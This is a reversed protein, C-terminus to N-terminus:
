KGPLKMTIYDPKGFRAYDWGPAAYEPNFPSRSAERFGKTEYMKNLMALHIGYSLAPQWGIRIRDPDAGISEIPITTISALLLVIGIAVVCRGPHRRNARGGPASRGRRATLQQLTKAIKAM